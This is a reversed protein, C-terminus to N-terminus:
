PAPALAAARRRARWAAINERLMLASPTVILTLMTAFALGFVIASSLQVWWQTSPAGMQASRAFFDINVQLVMPMLGLITTVTTLLVPRLRQAGTRLIADRPSAGAKKLRDFTDILVINNNVVIGALAIVGIGSMVIGFPRGTVLLGVIVGITSMVVASLILFASYFSNFQTVLIIAMLFLAVAFAQLLFRAAEDQDENEGRFEVEIRPDLGAEGIAAALQAVVADALVGEEVDAKITMARKGDVRQITGTQPVAQRTIFNSLPVQGRATAIRLQDLQDLTRFDGSFRARVDIEERSDDPRMTSLLLGNTVLQVMGGISAVDTGFKAAQARDVAIDWEIGPLPRSDEIDRLGDVAEMRQRIAAVVPEILAPHDSSVQIQIPKESAPGDQQGSLEIVIGALDATRELVEAFIEEAPPRQNWPLLEVNIRGIVDEAGSRAGRGGGGGAVTAYVTRFADMALVRQEVERVLSDKEWVSLNGRAHIQIAAREPEIDPFFEVGKGFTGYAMQVGVLMAVAGALVKAPHGLARGLLALYAGTFGGIGTLPGTADAALLRARESDGGAPKGFLSGLTPVFVLAMALSASLTAILTIPLFKMFEGVIGPWFLLPLFAVLTTMTSATIPWAMRSAAALYAQRRHQGEAMKREAYETVVIAGDVLMGVALILSFLVVINMTLGASSLVLIGALFSGPIAVGVLAASRWGLAWVIVIMVLLVASLVNNQLDSLMRRIDNSQDQTFAVEVGAPWGAAARAVIHRVKEITKIINEGTRKSVEIALAPEGSVRAFTSPDKFTRRVEAIDGVATVADGEVKVPLALLEGAGELLGPVKVGFRGLGTDLVGAAVLRNSRGVFDILERADLRYSEVLAPDIVIEVLEDRGGQIPAELVEPLSEIDDQLNRALALLTREPVDGALTVVVVPFLSLNVEHVSPEDSDAPLEPRALDVKSRVDDLAADPDFGADFELTVNAGGRYATSSIERVGDIGRLEQEMPRILLREADGPSIGEHSMSVYIIPIDIDPDSEKPITLYSVTGATLILVLLMLVTRPRGYAASILAIM